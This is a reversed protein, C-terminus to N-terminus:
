RADKTYYYWKNGFIMSKFGYVKYKRGTQNFQWQAYNFADRWTM